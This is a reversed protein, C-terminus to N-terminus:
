SRRFLGRRTGGALVNAFEEDTMPGPIAEEVESFKPMRVRTARNRRAKSHEISDNLSVVKGDALQQQGMALINLLSLAETTQENNHLDRLMDFREFVQESTMSPSPYRRLANLVRDANQTMWAMMAKPNSAMAELEVLDFCGGPFEVCSTKPLSKAKGRRM